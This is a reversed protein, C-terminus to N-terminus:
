WEPLCIDFIENLLDIWEGVKAANAAESVM